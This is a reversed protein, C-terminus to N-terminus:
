LVNTLNGFARRMGVAAGDCLIKGNRCDDRLSSSGIDEYSAFADKVAGTVRHLWTIEYLWAEIIVVVILSGIKRDEKRANHYDFGISMGTNTKSEATARAERGRASDPFRMRFALGRADSFLELNDATSGLCEGDHHNLLFKVPARSNLTRDFAGPLVMKYEGRHLPMIQNYRTAYGSLAMTM